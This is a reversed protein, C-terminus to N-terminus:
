DIWGRFNTTNDTYIYGPVIEDDDHFHVLQKLKCKGTSSDLAIIKAAGFPGKIKDGVKFENRFRKAEHLGKLQVYKPMFSNFDGNIEWLDGPQPSTMGQVPRNAQELPRGQAFFISPWGKVKLIKYVTTNRWPRSISSEGHDVVEVENGTTDVYVEGVKSQKQESITSEKLHKKKKHLHSKAVEVRKKHHKKKHPTKKMLYVGRGYGWGQGSSYWGSAGTDNGSDGSAGSMGGDSDGGMDGGVAGGDDETIVKSGKCKQCKVKITKSAGYPTLGNDKILYGKGKCKPCKVVDETVYSEGSLTCHRIAKVFTPAYGLFKNNHYMAWGKESRKVAFGGPGKYTFNGLNMWGRPVASGKDFLDDDSETMVTPAQLLGYIGAITMADTLTGDNLILRFNNSPTRLPMDVKSGDELHVQITENSTLVANKVRIWKEYGANDNVFIPQDSLAENLKQFLQNFKM